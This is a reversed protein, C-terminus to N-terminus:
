QTDASGFNMTPYLFLSVTDNGEEYCDKFEIQAFMVCFLYDPSLSLPFHTTKTRKLLLADCNCPRRWPSDIILGLLLSLISSYSASTLFDTVLTKIFANLARTFYNVKAALNRGPCHLARIPCPSSTESNELEVPGATPSM